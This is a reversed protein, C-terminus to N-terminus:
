ASASVLSAHKIPLTHHRPTVHMHVHTHFITVGLDLSCKEIGVSCEYCQLIVKKDPPLYWLTTMEDAKPFFHCSALQPKLIGLIECSVQM